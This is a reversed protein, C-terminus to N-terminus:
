KQADALNILQIKPNAIIGPTLKIEIEYQGLQKIHKPITIQKKDIEIKLKEFIKKAVDGEHVSGFIQQKEGVKVAITLVRKDLQNKLERFKIEDRKLKDEKQKGENKLKAIIQESAQVAFGKAILFNKAYGDSLQKVDNKRAVGALDKIFLVKM